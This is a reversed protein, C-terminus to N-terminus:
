TRRRALARWFGAGYDRLRNPGPPAAAVRQFYADVADAVRSRQEAPVTELGAERGERLSALSAELGRESVRELTEPLLTLSLGCAEFLRSYGEFDLYNYTDYEGYTVRRSYYDRATDFDLLTIGFLRHHGDRLVFDPCAGNPIELYVAGRPTLWGALNQLFTELRPVHEVVDNAVVVDFAGRFSPHAATADGHVLHADLGRERLNVQALALLRENVDIGTVRAGREAFAVLPGGYACGVDLVRPRRWRRGSLPVHRAVRDALGRGRENATVAYEFYMDLCPDDHLSCFHEALADFFAVNDATRFRAFREAVIRARPSLGAERTVATSHSKSMGGSLIAEEAAFNGRLPV